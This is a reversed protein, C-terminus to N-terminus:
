ISQDIDRRTFSKAAICRAASQAARPATLAATQLLSRSMQPTLSGRRRGGIATGPGDRLPDSVGPVRTATTRCYRAGDMVGSLAARRDHTVSADNM